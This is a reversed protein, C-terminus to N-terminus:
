FRSVQAMVHRQATFVAYM